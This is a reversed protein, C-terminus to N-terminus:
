WSSKREVRPLGLNERAAESPTPLNNLWTFVGERDFILTRGSKRVYQDLGNASANRIYYRFKSETWVPTTLGINLEDILAPLDVWFKRRRAMQIKEGQQVHSFFYTVFLCFFFSVLPISTSHIFSSYRRCGVLSASFRCGNTLKKLNEGQAQGGEEAIEM